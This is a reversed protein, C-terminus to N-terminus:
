SETQASLNSAAIGQDYGASKEYEALPPDRYPEPAKEPKPELAKLRKDLDTLAEHIQAEGYPYEYTEDAM